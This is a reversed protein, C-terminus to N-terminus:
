SFAVVLSGGLLALVAIGIAVFGWEKAAIEDVLAVLLNAIPTAMLIVLGATLLTETARLQPAALALVVGIALLTTSVATGVRLVVTMARASPHPPPRM